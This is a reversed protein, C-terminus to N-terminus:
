AKEDGFVSVAHPLAEQLDCCPLTHVPYSFTPFCPHIWFKRCTFGDGFFAGGGGWLSWEAGPSSTASGMWSARWEREQPGAELRDQSIGWSQQHGFLEDHLQHLVKPFFCGWVWARCKSPSTAVFESVLYRINFKHRQSLISGWLTGQTNLALQKVLANILRSINKLACVMVSM